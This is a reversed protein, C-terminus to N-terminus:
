SFPAGSGHTDNVFLDAASKREGDCVNEGGQALQQLFGDHPDLSHLLEEDWIVAQSSMRNFLGHVADRVVTLASFAVNKACVAADDVIPMDELVMHATNEFM